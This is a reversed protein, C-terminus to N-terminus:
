CRRLGDHPTLNAPPRLMGALASSWSAISVAGPFHCVKAENTFAEPWEHPSHIKGAAPEM